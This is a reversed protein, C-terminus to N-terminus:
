ALFIDASTLATRAAERLRMQAEQQRLPPAIVGMRLTISTANFSAIGHIKPATKFLDPTTQQLLNAVRELATYAKALDTSSSVSIELTEELSHRSLNVVTGIDGNFFQHIRGNTDRVRTIRMGIELVEGTITAITVIDGIVFLDDVILFFGAVIDRFLKQSGLAVVIGLVSAATLIPWIDFGVARLLLVVFISGLLYGITSRMLAQSTKLRAAQEETFGKTERQRLMRPVIEDLLSLLLRRTVTYLLILGVIQVVSHIANESLTEWFHLWFKATFLPLPQKM